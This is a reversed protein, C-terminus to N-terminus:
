KSRLLNLGKLTLDPDIRDIVKAHKCILSALGGTAVVKLSVGKLEGERLLL